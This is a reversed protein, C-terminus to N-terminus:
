LTGAATDLVSCNKLLSKPDGLFRTKIIKNTKLDHHSQFAICPRLSLSKLGNGTRVVEIVPTYKSFGKVDHNILELAPSRRSAAQRGRLQGRRPRRRAGAYFGSSNETSASIKPTICAVVRAATRSVSRATSAARRDTSHPPAM